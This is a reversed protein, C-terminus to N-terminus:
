AVYNIAASNLVENITANVGGSIISGGGGNPIEAIIAEEVSQDNLINQVVFGSNNVSENPIPQLQIQLVADEVELDQVHFNNTNTNSM